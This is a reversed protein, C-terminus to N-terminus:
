TVCKRFHVTGEIFHPLSRGHLSELYINWIKFKLCYNTPFHTKHHLISYSLLMWCLMKTLIFIKLTYQSPNISILSKIHKLRQMTAFFINERLLTTASVIIRVKEKEVRKSPPPVIIQLHKGNPPPVRGLIIKKSLNVELSQM